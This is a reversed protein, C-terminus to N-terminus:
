AEEVLKESHKEVLEVPASAFYPCVRAMATSTFHLAAGHIEFGPPNTPCSASDMVHLLLTSLAFCMLIWCRLSMVAVVLQRQLLIGESVFEESMPESRRVLSLNSINLLTWFVTEVHPCQGFQGRARVSGTSRRGEASGGSTSSSRCTDVHRGFYVDRVVAGSPATCSSIFRTKRSVADPRRTIFPSTTHSLKDHLAVGHGHRCVTLALLPPVILSPLDRTDSARQEHMQCVANEEEFKSRSQSRSRHYPCGSQHQKM